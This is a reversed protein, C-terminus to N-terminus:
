RASKPRLCEVWKNPIGAFHDRLRDEVHEPDWIAACELDECDEITGLPGDFGDYTLRIIEPKLADQNFRRVPKKLSESMAANGVKVWRGQSHASRMVWLRFLVPHRVVEEPAIEDTTRVDFFAYEPDVLMQGYGHSGDGLPILVIAGSTWRQRKGSSSPKAM